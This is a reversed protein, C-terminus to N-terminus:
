AKVMLTQLLEVQTENSIKELAARDSEDSVEDVFDVGNVSGVAAMYAKLLRNPDAAATGPPAPLPMWHTPLTSSPSYACDELHPLWVPHPTVECTADLTAAYVMRGNWLLAQFGNDKPATEIPQWIM